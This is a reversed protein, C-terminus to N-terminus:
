FKRFGGFKEKCVKLITLLIKSIEEITKEFCVLM